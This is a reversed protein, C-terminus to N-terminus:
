HFQIKSYDTEHTAMARAELPTWSQGMGCGPAELEPRAAREWSLQVREVFLLDLSRPFPAQTPAVVAVPFLAAMPGLSSDPCIKQLVFLHAWFTLKQLAPLGSSPLPLVPQLSYPLGCVRLSQWGSEAVAVLGQSRTSGDCAEWPPLARGTKGWWRRAGCLSNGHSVCVRGWPLCLLYESGQQLPM